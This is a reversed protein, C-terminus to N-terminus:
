EPFEINIREMSMEMQKSMVDRIRAAMKEMRANDRKGGDVTEIAWLLLRAESRTFHVGLIASGLLREAKAIADRRSQAAAYKPYTTSM